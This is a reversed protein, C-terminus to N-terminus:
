FHWASPDLNVYRSLTCRLLARTVLYRRRDLEFYFRKEQVLEAASLLRRYEDLLDDLRHDQFFTLWVHIQNRHLQEYDGARGLM